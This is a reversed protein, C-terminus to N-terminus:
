LKHEVECVYLLLLGSTNLYAAFNVLIFAHLIYSLLIGEFAPLVYIAIIDRYLWVVLCLVSHFTM